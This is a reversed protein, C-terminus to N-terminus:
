PLEGLLEPTSSVRTHIGNQSADLKASTRRRARRSEKAIKATLRKQKQVRGRCLTYDRLECLVSAFSAFSVRCSFEPPELERTRLRRRVARTRGMEPSRCDGRRAYDLFSGDGSVGRAFNIASSNNRRFRRTFHPRCRRKSEAGSYGSCGDGDTLISSRQIANRAACSSRLFRSENSGSKAPGRLVTRRLARQSDTGASARDRQQLHSRRLCSGQSGADLFSFIRTTALLRRCGGLSFRARKRRLSEGIRRDLVRM